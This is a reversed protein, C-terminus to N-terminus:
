FNFHYNVGARVISFTGSSGRVSGQIKTIRVGTNCSCPDIDIQYVKRRWGDNSRDDAHDCAARIIQYTGESALDTVLFSLGTGDTNQVTVETAGTTSTVSVSACIKLNSGEQWTGWVPFWWPPTGPNATPAASRFATEASAPFGALMIAALSTAAIAILSRRM